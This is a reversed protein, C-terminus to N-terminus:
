KMNQRRTIHLKTMQQGLHPQKRQAPLNHQLKLAASCQVHASKIGPLM